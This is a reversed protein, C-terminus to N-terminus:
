APRHPRGRAFVEDIAVIAAKMNLTDFATEPLLIDVGGELLGRVQEKYADKVQDFTVTRFSADDVKPSFSLSKALPGIAGAVFRPTKPDRKMWIDRAECAVKAAAVNM